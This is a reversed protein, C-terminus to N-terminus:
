DFIEFAMGMCLNLQPTHRSNDTRIPTAFRREQQRNLYEVMQGFLWFGM